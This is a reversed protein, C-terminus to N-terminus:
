CGIGQGVIGAFVWLVFGAASALATFIGPRMPFAFLLSMLILTGFATCPDLGNYRVIFFPGFLISCNPWANWHYCMLGLFVGTWTLLLGARFRSRNANPPTEPLSAM